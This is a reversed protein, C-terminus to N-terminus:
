RIGELFNAALAAAAQRPSTATQLVTFAVNGRYGVFWSTWHGPSTKVVSGQGYVQQGPVDAAQATGTKVAKRMLVRLDALSGRSLSSSWTAPPDGAVLAPARGVGSDVEAAVLAMALPSMRVQGQGIMEAALSAGAQGAAQSGSFAQVPLHWNYGVGFSRAASDLDAGNLLMSLNAFEVSCGDAFVAAFPQGASARASGNTFMQGGVNEVPECPVVKNMTVGANLLAATSVITFAMGPVGRANFAGGPPLPQGAVEREAATIINGNAANVAIIEGSSGPQARLAASAARQVPGQITTRVPTGPTGPWSALTDITRGAANVVTVETQATGALTHQFAQELGSLGITAGPQYTTGQALLASSNETGVAGVPADALPEFLRERHRQVQIGAIQRLKPQLKAYDAPRLKLLSMYQQPPAAAIQGLLQQGDLQTAQGLQDATRQPHALKGPTVGVTYVTSQALMPEGQADLVQARQGFGTRVALRDGPGLAPNIVSPGWQVMWNGGIERLPFQGQYTWQHGGEALNLTATFHAVATHGHQVIGGMSLFMQTADLDTFAAQLQATVKDKTGSTLAAAAAYKQQQWALLFSKVTPEASSEAGFGSALGITVFGVVVILVAAM